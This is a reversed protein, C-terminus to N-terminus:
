VKILSLNQISLQFGNCHMPALMERSYKLRTVVELIFKLFLLLPQKEIGGVLIRFYSNNLNTITYIWDKKKKKKRADFCGLFGLNVLIPLLLAVVSNM